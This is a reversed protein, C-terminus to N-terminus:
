PNAEFSKVEVTEERYESKEEGEPYSFNGDCNARETTLEDRWWLRGLVGGGLTGVVTGLPRRPRVARGVEWLPALRQTRQPSRRASADGIPRQPADERERSGVRTANHAQRWAVEGGHLRWDPVSPGKDM